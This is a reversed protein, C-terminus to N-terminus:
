HTSIDFERSVPARSVRVTGKEEFSVVNVAGTLRPSGSYHAAVPGSSICIHRDWHGLAVYDAGTGDLDSQSILWSPRLVPYPPEAVHGHAVAVQWRTTRPPPNRLPQMDGYDLHANGWIELDLSELIVSNSGSLGIVSVTPMDSFPGRQYVSGPTLPDHNGPLIVVPFPADALCRAAREVLETPLRNHEFVDGALLLVDASVENAVHVVAELVAVADLHISDILWPSDVHLDSSHVLVFGDPGRVQDTPPLERM